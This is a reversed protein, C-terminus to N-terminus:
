ECTTSTVFSCIAFAYGLEDLSSLSAISSALDMKSAVSDLLSLPVKPYSQYKQGKSFFPCAILSADKCQTMEFGAVPFKNRHRELSVPVFM